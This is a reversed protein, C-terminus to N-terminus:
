TPLYMDIEAYSYTFDAMLVNSHAVKQKFKFKVFGINKKRFWGYVTAISM